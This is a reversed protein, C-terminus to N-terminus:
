YQLCLAFTAKLIFDEVIQSVYRKEAAYHRCRRFFFIILM